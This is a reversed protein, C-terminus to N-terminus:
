CFRSGFSFYCCVNGCCCRTCVFLWRILFCGRRVCFGALLRGQWDWWGLYAECLVFWLLLDGLRSWWWRRRAYVLCLMSGSV